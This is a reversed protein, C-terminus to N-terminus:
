RRRRSASSASSEIMIKLDAPRGNRLVKLTATTGINTLVGGGDVSFEAINSASAVYVFRNDPAVAVSQPGTETRVYGNSRLVGTNADVTYTSLTSDGFNAAFAFRAFNGRCTVFVNTVNANPVTGSYNAVTCIQEPNNPQTTVLVTYKDGSGLATPFVFAGNANIPMDAEHNLRLTLGQGSLGSVTGGITFAQAAIPAGILFAVALFGGVRATLRPAM